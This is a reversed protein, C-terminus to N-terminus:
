ATAEMSKRNFSRNVTRNLSRNHRDPFHPLDLSFKVWLLTSSSLLSFSSAQTFSLLACPSSIPQLST